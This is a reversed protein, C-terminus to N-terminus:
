ARRLYALRGIVPRLEQPFTPIETHGALAAIEDPDAGHVWNLSEIWRSSKEDSWVTNNQGTVKEVRFNSKPPYNSRM